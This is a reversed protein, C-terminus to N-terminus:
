LFSFLRILYQLEANVNSTFFANVHSKLCSLLFIDDTHHQFRSLNDTAPLIFNSSKCYSIPCMLNAFYSKDLIVPAHIVHDTLNLITTITNSDIPATATHCKPVVHETNNKTTIVPENESIIEKEPISPPTTPVSNTRSTLQLLLTHVLEFKADTENHKEMLDKYNRQLLNFKADINSQILDIKDSLAQIREDSNDVMETKVKKNNPM